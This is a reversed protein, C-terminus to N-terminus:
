KKEEKDVKPKTTTTEIKAKAVIFELAKQRLLYDEIYQKMGTNLRQKLEAIDQGSQTAMNKLETEIDEPMVEIKENEAIAGLVVKGRVRMEATKKFEERITKEDKKIGKLYDDFSLRSQALSSRFEDLMLDVEREIMAAPVDFKAESSAQAVLKDKIQADAAQARDREMTTRLEQKLEALTGFSSVKKAFEDDLAVLEQKGDPGPQSMRQQLNGLVKDLEEETVPPTNQEVKLGKYKGLKVEPYVELTLKFLFPKPKELQSIEISPYDVPEVKAESIVQPYLESILNQAARSQIAGPDIMKEVMNKPAKGQRFGPVKMEKTAEALAVQTSQEFRSYDEEIELFVKNGERKNTLIKM